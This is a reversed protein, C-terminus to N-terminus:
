TARPKEQNSSRTLTNFTISTSNFSGEGERQTYFITRSPDTQERM